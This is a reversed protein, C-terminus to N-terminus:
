FAEDRMRWTFVTASRKGERTVIPRDDGWGTAHEPACYDRIIATVMEAGDSNGTAHKTTILADILKRKSSFFRRGRDDLEGQAFLDHVAQESLGHAESATCLVCGGGRTGDERTPREYHLPEDWSGFHSEVDVSWRGGGDKSTRKLGIIVRSAGGKVQAGIGSHSVPGLQEGKAVHDVLLLAAGTSQAVDNLRGFVEGMDANSSPDKGPLFRYLTDLIVIQAGIQSILDKLHTAGQETGLDLHPVYSATPAVVHFMEDIDPMAVGTDRAVEEMRSRLMGASLELSILLVPVRMTKLGLFLGGGLISMILHLVWWTKGAKSAGTLLHTSAFYILLAVIAKPAVDSVWELPTLLRPPLPVPKASQKEEARSEEYEELYSFEAGAEFSM